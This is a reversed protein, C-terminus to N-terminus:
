MCPCSANHPQTNPCLWHALALRKLPRPFFHSPLFTAGSCHTAFFQCFQCHNFQACLTLSCFRSFHRPFNTSTKSLILTQARETNTQALPASVGSCVRLTHVCGCAYVCTGLAGLHVWHVCASAHAQMCTLRAQTSWASNNAVGAATCLWGSYGPQSKHRRIGKGRAARFVRWCGCWRAM